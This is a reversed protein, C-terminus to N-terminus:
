WKKQLINQIFCKECCIKYSISTFKITKYSIIIWSTIVQLNLNKFFIVSFLLKKCFKKVFKMNIHSNRTIYIARKINLSM